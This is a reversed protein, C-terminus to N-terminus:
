GNVKMQKSYSLFKTIFNFRYTKLSKGDVNSVLKESGESTAKVLVTIRDSFYRGRYCSQDKM